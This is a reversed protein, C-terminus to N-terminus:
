ECTRRPVHGNPFREGLWEVINRSVRGERSTVLHRMKSSADRQWNRSVRGERSTVIKLHLSLVARAIEVRVDRAPRSMTHPNPHWKSDIEVRVDRAPRSMSGVLEPGAERANRSERGERSTVKGM